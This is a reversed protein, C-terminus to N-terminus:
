AYTDRLSRARLGSVFEDLEFHGGKALFRLERTEGALLAFGADSFAGVVSACEVSVFAASRNSGITIIAGRDSTKRVSVIKVDARPLVAEKWQVLWHDASALLTESGGVAEEVGREAAESAAESAAAAGVAATGAAAAAASVHTGTLELRVFAEASAVARNGLLPQGVWVAKTCAPGISVRASVEVVPRAPADAWLHLRIKLMAEISHSPHDNSVHVRMVRGRPMFGGAADESGEGVAQEGADQGAEVDGAQESTTSILVDAFVRKVFHHSLRLRGDYEITSWDPGQWIANLQWYLIGMTNAPASRQRRWQAFATEYCRAQQLQSLWLYTDFLQRQQEAQRSGAAIGGAASDDEAASSGETTANARPVRFHRQMM